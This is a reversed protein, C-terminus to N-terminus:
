LLGGDRTWIVNWHEGDSAACGNVSAYGLANQTASAAWPLLNVARALHRDSDLVVQRACSSIEGFYLAQCSFVTSIGHRWLMRVERSVGQDVCAVWGRRKDRIRVQPHRVPEWAYSIATEAETEWLLRVRRIVPRGPPPKGMETRSLRPMGLRRFVDIVEYDEHDEVVVVRLDTSM